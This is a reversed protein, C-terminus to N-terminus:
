KRCSNEISRINKFSIFNNISEGLICINKTRKICGGGGEGWFFLLHVDNWLKLWLKNERDLIAMLVHLYHVNVGGALSLARSFGNRTRGVLLCHNYLERLRPHPRSFVSVIEFTHCDRRSSRVSKNRRKFCRWLFGSHIGTSATRTATVSM